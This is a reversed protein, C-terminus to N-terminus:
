DIKGNITTPFASMLVFRNPIMYTPLCDRLQDVVDAAFRAHDPEDQLTSLAEEGIALYVHLRKQGGDESVGVVSDIVCPLSNCAAEIEGPEIRYSGLKIQHDVRGAFDIQGDPLWRALDGTAYLRRQDGEVTIKQFAQDTLDPRHLYESALAPGGIFLQGTQGIACQHHNADLIFADYGPLPFGIPMNTTEDIGDTWNRPPIFVTASVTAETPGYANAWLVDHDCLQLWDRYHPVSVKEGTVVMLRLCDPVRAQSAKMLEVWSHWYATALHIATIGRERVIESLENASQSRTSPRVVVTSGSVLPPFIEEIAIDFNLTSFQLTRDNHQLQYIAEDALCYTMLARHSIAVGKPQGTSGSTYMVYALSDPELTFSDNNAVNLEQPRKITSRKTESTNGANNNSDIWQDVNIWQPMTNGLELCSKSVKSLMGHNDASTIILSIPADAIMTALREPPYQPDLPVFALSADMVGLMSVIAEASHDLCLGVFVRDNLRVDDQCKIWTQLHQGISSMSSLVEGYTWSRRDDEIAVVDPQAKATQRFM